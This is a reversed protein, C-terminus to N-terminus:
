QAKEQKEESSAEPSTQTQEEEKEKEEGEEEKKESIVEPEEATETPTEELEKLEEETRPPTVVVVTEDPNDLVEINKPIPLDAVCIKDDFTKLSSVDVKIEHILDQPLCEIEITPKTVILNGGLEAVAPATGKTVIPVETKIKETMKIQYFDVHIPEDTLPHFQVQHILVKKPEKEGEIKLNILTSTGAKKFVEKFKNKAVELIQNKVNHGYLVAPIKGIKALKKSAKKTIKRIKAKLSLSEQKM